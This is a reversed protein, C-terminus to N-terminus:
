RTARLTQVITVNMTADAGGARITIGEVEIEIIGVDPRTKRPIKREHDVAVAPAMADVM